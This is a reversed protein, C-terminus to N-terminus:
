VKFPRPNAPSVSRTTNAAPPILTTATRIWLAASPIRRDAPWKRPSSPQCSYPCDRRNPIAKANWAAGQALVLTGALAATRASFSSHIFHHNTNKRPIIEMLVSVGLFSQSNHCVTFYQCSTSFPYFGNLLRSCDLQIGDNCAPPNCNDGCGGIYQNYVQGTPCQQM